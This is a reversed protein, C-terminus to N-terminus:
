ASELDTSWPGCWARPQMSGQSRPKKRAPLNTLFESNSGLMWRPSLSTCALEKSSRLHKLVRMFHKFVSGKGNANATVDLYTQAIVNDAWHHRQAVKQRHTARGWPGQKAVCIPQGKVRWSSDDETCDVKCKSPRKPLQEPWLKRIPAAVVAPDWPSGSWRILVKPSARTVCILVIDTCWSARKDLNGTLQPLLYQM